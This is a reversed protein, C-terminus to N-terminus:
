YKLANFIMSPRDAEIPPLCRMEADSESECVALFEIPHASPAVEKAGNHIRAVVKQLTPMM